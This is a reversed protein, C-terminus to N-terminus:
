GDFEETSVRMFSCECVGSQFLGAGMFGYTSNTDNIAAYCEQSLWVAKVSDPLTYEIVFDDNFHIDASLEAVTPATISFNTVSSNPPFIFSGWTDSAGHVLAALCSVIAGSILHRSSGM